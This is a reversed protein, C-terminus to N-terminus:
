SEAPEDGAASILRQEWVRQLEKDAYRNWSTQFQQIYKKRQQKIKRRVNSRAKGAPMQKSLELANDCDHVKGLVGQARAIWKGARNGEKGFCGEFFENLYRMQRGARRLDHAPEKSYAGVKRFRRAILDRVALIRRAALERLTPLGRKPAAAPKSFFADAEEMLRRYATSDLAARAYDNRQQRLAAMMDDQEAPDLGLTGSAQQFDELLEMWVDIDRARGLQDSVAKAHKDAKKLYGRAVPSFTDAIARVRRLAVRANHLAKVSGSRIGSENKNIVEIQEALLRRLAQQATEPAPTQNNSARSM